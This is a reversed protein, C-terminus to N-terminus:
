SGREGIGSGHPGRGRGASLAPSAWRRRRIAVGRGEVAVAGVYGPAPRVASLVYGEAGGAVGEARLLRAPAGPALTVDFSDLPRALGDGVAKLFAEKRTWGAFFAELRVSADMAEFQAREAPSFCRAALADLDGVERIREVDVGVEHDGSVAVLAISGSHALNFHPAAGGALRPKGGPGKELEVAAARRGLYASLVVRLLGHACVFRSRDRPRVLREARAREEASLFAELRTRAARALDLRLSWVHVERPRMGRADETM